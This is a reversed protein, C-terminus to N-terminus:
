FVAYRDHLATNFSGSWTKSFLSSQLATGGNLQDLAQRPDFDEGERSPFFSPGGRSAFFRNRGAGPVGVTTVTSVELAIPQTSCRNRGLVDCLRGLSGTRPIVRFPDVRDAEEQMTNHAFLNTKM